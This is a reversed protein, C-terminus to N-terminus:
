NSFTPSPQTGSDSYTGHLRSELHRSRQLNPTPLSVRSPSLVGPYIDQGPPRRHSISVFSYISDAKTRDCSPLPSLLRCEGFDVLQVEHLDAQIEARYEVPEVLYEPVGPELPAGDRRSIKGVGPPGLEKIVDEPSLAELELVRFLVNGAHIDIQTNPLAALHFAASLPSFFFVRSVPMRWALQTFIIWQRSCRDLSLGLLSGTSGAPRITM